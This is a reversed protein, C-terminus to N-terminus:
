QTAAEDSAFRDRRRQLEHRATFMVDEDFDRALVWHLFGDDAEAWPEGKRDGFPMRALLTPENTWKILQALPAHQLLERLLFATVYADPGARHAPNALYRELGRPKLWYRLAQNSHSPAEPWVRLACKWTCIWPVNGVIEPTLWQREMKATHAALALVRTPDVRLSKFAESWLPAGAVDEDVLHHVASSEPPITRGPYLLLSQPAGIDAFCWDCAQGLLDLETATLDCRGIEIPAHDPPAFGTTELDLVCIFPLAAAPATM